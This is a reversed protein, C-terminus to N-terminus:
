APEKPLTALHEYYRDVALWLEDTSMADARWSLVAEALAVKPLAADREAEATLARTRAEERGAVLHANAVVPLSLRKVEAEADKARQRWDVPRALCDSAGFCWPACLPCPCSLNHNKAEPSIIARDAIPHDCRTCRHDGM